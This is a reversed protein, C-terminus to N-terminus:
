RVLLGQGIWPMLLKYDQSKSINNADKLIVEVQEAKWVHVFYKHFLKIRMPSNYLQWIALLLETMEAYFQM